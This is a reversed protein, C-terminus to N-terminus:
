VDNKKRINKKLIMLDNRLENDEKEMNKILENNNEILKENEYKLQNIELDKHIIQNKIENLIEQVNDLQNNLMKNNFKEEKLDTELEFIKKNFQIENVNKEQRMNELEKYLIENKEDNHKITLKLEEFIIKDESTKEIENQNNIKSLLDKMQFSHAERESYLQENLNKKILNLETEKLSINNKLEKIENNLNLIELDKNKIILNYKSEVESKIQTNQNQPNFSSLELIKEEYKQKQKEHDDNINKIKQEYSKTINKIESYQSLLKQNQSNLESKMEEILSTLDSNMKTIKTNELDKMKLAEELKVVLKKYEILDDIQSNFDSM